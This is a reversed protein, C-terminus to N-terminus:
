FVCHPLMYAIELKWGEAQARDKWVTEFIARYDEESIQERLHVTREYLELYTPRLRVTAQEDDLYELIVQNGNLVPQEWCVYLIFATQEPLLPIWSGAAM